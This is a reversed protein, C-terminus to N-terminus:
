LKMSSSVNRVSTHAVLEIHEAMKLLYSFGPVSEATQRFISITENLTINAGLVLRSDTVRHSILNPVKAVNIYM